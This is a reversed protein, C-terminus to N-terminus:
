QPRERAERVKALFERVDRVQYPLADDGDNGSITVSEGPVLPHTWYTHSGKAPRWGAGERRMERKIERVKPPM